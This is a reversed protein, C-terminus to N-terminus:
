HSRPGDYIKPLIRRYDEPGDNLQRGLENPLFSVFPPVLCPFSYSGFGLSASLQSCSFLIFPNREHIGVTEDNRRGESYTYINSPFGVLVKWKEKRGLKRFNFKNKVEANFGLIIYKVKGHTSIPPYPRSFIFAISEPVLNQKFWWQKLLHIYSILYTYKKSLVIRPNVEHEEYNM